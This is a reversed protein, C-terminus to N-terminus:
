LWLAVGENSGLRQGGLTLEVFRDLSKRTYDVAPSDSGIQRIQQAIGEKWRREAEASAAGNGLLAFATILGADVLMGHYDQPMDPVDDDRSLPYPIRQYRYYLNKQADPVDQLQVLINDLFVRYTSSSDGTSPAEYVTLQTDSDVTNITYVETTDDIAIQNGRSLGQPNTLWLTSTGTITRSASTVAVTGTTYRSNGRGIIAFSTPDNLQDNDPFWRDMDLYSLGLMFLGDEIQRLDLLKHVDGNLRYEDQFITYTQTAGGTGQYNQTLTVETTSVFVAIDYWANESGVRFKRGVMASTFTTSAGTVTTSGNTVTVTGTTYDNITQITGRSRYHPWDWSGAYEFLRQRLVRRLLVRRTTGLASITEIDSLIHSLQM